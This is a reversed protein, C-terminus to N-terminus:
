DLRADHCRTATQPNERLEDLGDVITQNFHLRTLSKLTHNKKQLENTSVPQIAYHLLPNTGPLLHAPV